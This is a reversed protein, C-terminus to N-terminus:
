ERGDRADRPDGYELGDDDGKERPNTPAVDLTDLVAVRKGGRNAHHWTASVRCGADEVELALSFAREDRTLVVTRAADAGDDSALHIEYYATSIRDPGPVVYTQVVLVNRAALSPAAAPTM